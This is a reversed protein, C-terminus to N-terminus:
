RLKPTNMAKSFELKAKAYWTAIKERIVFEPADATTFKNQLKLLSTANKRENKREEM